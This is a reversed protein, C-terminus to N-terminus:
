PEEVKKFSIVWVFPNDHWGFGNKDYIEDWICRFAYKPSGNLCLRVEEETMPDYLEPHDDKIMGERIADQETIEQVKEVRINTIKLTITTGRVSLLGGIKGYHCDVRAYSGDESIFKWSRESDQSVSIHTYGQLGKVPRRTQTKNGSLIARIMEDTFAISKM